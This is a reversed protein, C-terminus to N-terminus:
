LNNLKHVGMHLQILSYKLFRRQAQLEDQGWAYKEYSSWAHVMAEEVQERQQIENPEDAVVDKKSSRILTTRVANGNVNKLKELCNAFNASM